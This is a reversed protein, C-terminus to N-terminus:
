SNGMVAEEEGGADSDDDLNQLSKKKLQQSQAELYRMDERPANM